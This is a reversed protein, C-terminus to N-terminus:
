VVGEVVLTAGDDGAAFGAAALALQALTSNTRVTLAARFRRDGWVHVALGLQGNDSALPLLLATGDCRATGALAPSDGIGPIGTLLTTVGGGARLCNGAPDLYLSVDHLEIDLVPVLAYPLALRLGGSVREALHQGRDSGVRGSLRGGAAAARDFDLRLKGALLAGPDLGVGLDGLVVGHWQADTLRGRWISGSIASATLDPAVHPTVLRLPLFALVLAAAILAAALWKWM